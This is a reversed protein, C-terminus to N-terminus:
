VERKRRLLMLLEVLSDTLVTEVSRRTCTCFIVNLVASGSPANGSCVFGGHSVVKFWNWGDKEGYSIESLDMGSIM